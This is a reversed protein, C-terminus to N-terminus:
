YCPGVGGGGGDVVLVSFSTLHFVVVSSFCSFYGYLTDWFSHLGRFSAWNSLTLILKLARVQM